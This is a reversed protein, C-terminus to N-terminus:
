QNGGTFIAFSNHCRDLANGTKQPAVNGAACVADIGFDSTARKRRAQCFGGSPALRKLRQANETPAEAAAKAM